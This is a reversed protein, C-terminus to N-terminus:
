KSWSNAKETRLKQARANTCGRIARTQSFKSNFIRRCDYKKTPIEVEFNM